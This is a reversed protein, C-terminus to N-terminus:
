GICNCAGVGESTSEIRALSPTGPTGPVSGDHGEPHHDGAHMVTLALIDHMPEFYDRHEGSLRRPPQGATPAGALGAVNTRIQNSITGLNGLFSKM